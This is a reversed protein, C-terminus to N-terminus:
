RVSEGSPADKMAEVVFDDLLEEFDGMENLVDRIDPDIMDEDIAIAELMREGEVMSAMVDSPLDLEINM